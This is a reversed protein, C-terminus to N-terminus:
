VYANFSLYSISWYLVFMLQIFMYFVMMGMGDDDGFDPIDYNPKEV